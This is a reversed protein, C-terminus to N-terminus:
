RVPLLLRDRRWGHEGASWLVLEVRGVVAERPVPGFRRSDLSPDGVDGLVALHGPAVRRGAFPEGPGAVVRKVLAVRPDLPSRLWVVDGGRPSRIPLLPTIALPLRRAFLMRNVLVRDGPVLTPSMSGTPILGAAVVFCRVFLAVLSGVLLARSFASWSDAGRSLAAPPAHAVM